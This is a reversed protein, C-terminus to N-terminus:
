CGPMQEDDNNQNGNGCQGFEEEIWNVFEEWSEVIDGGWEHFRNAWWVRDREGMTVTGNAEMIEM